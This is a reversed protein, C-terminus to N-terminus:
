AYLADRQKTLDAIEKDAASQATAPDKPDPKAPDAAGTSAAKSPNNEIFEWEFDWAGTKHDYKPTPPQKLAIIGIGGWNVIGNEIHVSPPKNGRKPRVLLLLDTMAQFSPGDHARFKLKLTEAPKSGKWSSTSGSTNTGKQVNWDEPSTAGDVEVLMCEVLVDEIIVFGFPGYDFFPNPDDAM